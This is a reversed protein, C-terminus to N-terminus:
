SEQLCVLTGCAADEERDVVPVSLAGPFKNCLNGPKLYTIIRKCAGPRPNADTFKLFIAKRGIYNARQAVKNHTLERNIVGSIFYRAPILRGLQSLNLILM